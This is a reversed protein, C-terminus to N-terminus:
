PITLLSFRPPSFPRKCSKEQHVFPIGHVLSLFCSPTAPPFGTDSGLSGLADRRILNPTSPNILKIGVAARTRCCRLPPPSCNGAAFLLNM